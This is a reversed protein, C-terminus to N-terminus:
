RSQPFSDKTFIHLGTRDYVCHRHNCIGETKNETYYIGLIHQYHTPFSVVFQVVNGLWIMFTNMTAFTTESVLVNRLHIHLCPPARYLFCFLGLPEKLSSKCYMLRRVYTRMYTHPKDKNGLYMRVLMRLKLFVSTYSSGATMSCKCFFGLCEGMAVPILQGVQNLFWLTHKM